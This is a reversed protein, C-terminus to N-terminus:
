PSRRQDLFKVVAETRSHVHLKDYIKRLHGRVTDISIGLRNAIEKYLSGQALLELVGRERETLVSIGAAPPTRHFFGVVQRAIEPSMPSGGARVQVIADVIEAPPTRKLLYGCAGAKLADFIMPSDDYMTLILCLVTPHLIKLRAVCEIGNMRPLNIDVLAVEPPDKVMGSLATEADAYVATCEVRSGSLRLYKALAEAFLPDDEILVTRIASVYTEFLSQYNLPSFARV